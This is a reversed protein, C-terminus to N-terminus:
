VTTPLWPKVEGSLKNVAEDYKTTTETNQQKLADREQTLTAQQTKLDEIDAKLKTNEETLQAAQAQLKKQEDQLANAQVELKKYKSSAVCGVTVLCLLVAVAVRLPTKM